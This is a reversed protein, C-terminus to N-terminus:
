RNSPVHRHGHFWTATMKRRRRLVLDIQPGAHPESGRKVATVHRRHSCWIRGSMRRRRQDAASAPQEGRLLGRAHATVDAHRDDTALATTSSRNDAASRVANTRCSMKPTQKASTTPTTPRVWGRHPLARHASPIAVCVAQGSRRLQFRPRWGPQAFGRGARHERRRTRGLRSGRAGGRQEGEAGGRKGCVKRAETVM